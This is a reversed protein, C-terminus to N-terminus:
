TPPCLGVYCASLAEGCCACPVQSVVDPIERMLTRYLPSGDEPLQLRRLREIRHDETKDFYITGAVALVALPLIAALWFRLKKM